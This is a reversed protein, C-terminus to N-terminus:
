SIVNRYGEYSKATLRQKKTILEDSVLNEIKSIEIEEKDKNEEYIEEAIDLAIKEKVGNGTKMAKLIAKEIKVKDFDDETCDRKIVKLM